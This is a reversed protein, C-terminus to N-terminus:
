EQQEGVSLLPGPTLSGVSLRPDLGLEIRRPVSATQIQTGPASILLMWHCNSGVLVLTADKRNAKWLQCM